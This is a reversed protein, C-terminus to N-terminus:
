LTAGSAVLEAVKEFIRSVTQGLHTISGIAVVVVLALMVAYETVVPGDESRVFAVIAASLKSM